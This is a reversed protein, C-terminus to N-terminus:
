IISLKFMKVNNIFMSNEYNAEAQNYVEQRSQLIVAVSSGFGTELVFEFLM